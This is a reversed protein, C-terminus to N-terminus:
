FQFYLFQSSYNMFLLTIVALVGVLCQRRAGWLHFENYHSANPTYFIIGLGVALLAVLSIFDRSRMLDAFQIFNGGFAANLWVKAAKLSPARFLPWGVTVLLFTIGVQISRHMRDWKAKTLHYFSIIAGHYFGWLVYKWGAGHWLGAIVMTAVLNFHLRWKTGRGPGSMAIPIYLYDHLWSSLTMHWRKWFDSPNVSAYPRNFNQPLEVGFLRGLGIAMDSYGSFDFYLQLGYGLMCLWAYLADISQLDVLMPDIFSAIRDALLVKKALGIVFLFIGDAWRPHCGTKSLTDLQPILQDHRTLPGAILHPFFAIFGCFKFFNDEAKCNGFYVDLIYSISQFTYFSIGSPLIVNFFHDWGRPLHMGFHELTVEATSAFFLSYKFYVLLGLNLTLSLVLLKKRRSELLSSEIAQGIMFDVVITILMPFIFWAHGAVAYFVFSAFALWRLLWQGRLRCAIFVVVPLFIFIFALSNFLM